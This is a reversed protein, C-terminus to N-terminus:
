DGIQFHSGIAIAVAQLTELSYKFDAAIKILDFVEIPDRALHQLVYNINSSGDSNMAAGRAALPVTDLAADSVSRIVVWPLHRKEALQIMYYSEDDIAEAKTDHYMKARQEPTDAEDIKGDSYYRITGLKYGVANTADLIKKCWPWDSAYSTSSGNTVTGALVVNGVVIRPSLGGCLGMSVMHSVNNSVLEDLMGKAIEGCYVEADPFNAKILDREETLGCVVGVIM